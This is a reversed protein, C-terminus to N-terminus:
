ILNKSKLWILIQSIKEHPVIMGTYRIGSKTPYIKRDYLWNLADISGMLLAEDSNEPLIGASGLINLIEVNNAGAAVNAVEAGTVLNLLKIEVAWKIINARGAQAAIPLSEPGLDIGKIHYWKFVYLRKSAMDRASDLLEGDLKFQGKKYYQEMIDLRGIGVAHSLTMEPLSEGIPSKVITPQVAIPQVTINAQFNIVYNLNSGHISWGGKGDSIVLSLSNPDLDPSIYIGNEDIKRIVYTPPSQGLLGVIAFDGMQISRSM